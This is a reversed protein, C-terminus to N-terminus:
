RLAELLRGRAETLRASSRPLRGPEEHVVTGPRPSLALVRDCVVLAEEVDHTVLVLTRPEAALAECLWDQLESRTIQDLAGFPEDLLLVPTEALLTRVFAVRQRIGGSLEWTHAQAFRELGLAAFLKWARARAEARRLGRNQLAICANDLASRWPMLLDKQPMLAAPEAVVAGASPSELGAILSLLTSKGCGSQGVIGLAESPDVQFTVDRLTELTGYRHGVREMRVAPPAATSEVALAVAM